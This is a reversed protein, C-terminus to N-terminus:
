HAAKTMEHRWLTKYYGNGLRSRHASGSTPFLGALSNGREGKRLFYRL